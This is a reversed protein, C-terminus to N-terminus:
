QAPPHWQVDLNYETFGVRRYLERATTNDGDVYLMAIRCGREGLHRLGRILLAKGLGIGQADPGVGLVYVEGVDDAHVKTWHYGVLEGDREAVLFGKADFWPEAFRAELDERTWRGQEAHSAFAAANVRLWADDDTGPEFSRVVIGAGLPPDPPLDDLPRRLHFLRRVPEFRRDDLAPVVRSHRGHSWVLVGAAAVEDVLLGVVDSRAAIEAADADRQAYGVVRGDEHALLHAVGPSRLRTLAQDSLPPSGDEREVQRALALIASRTEADPIDTALAPM